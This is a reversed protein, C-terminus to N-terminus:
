RVARRSSVHSECQLVIQLVSGGCNRGCRSVQPRVQLAFMRWAFMYLTPRACLSGAGVGVGGRPLILLSDYLLVGSAGPFVNGGM